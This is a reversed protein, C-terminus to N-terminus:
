SNTLQRRLAHIVGAASDHLVRVQFDYGRVRQASAARVVDTGRRPASVLPPGGAKAAQGGGSEGESSLGQRASWDGSLWRVSLERLRRPRSRDQLRRDGPYERGVSRLLEAAQPRAGPHPLVAPRTTIIGGHAPTQHIAAPVDTAARVSHSYAANCRHSKNVAILGHHSWDIATIATLCTRAGNCGSTRAGDLVNRAHARQLLIRSTRRPPLTGIQHCPPPLALCPWAPRKIRSSTKIAASRVFSVLPHCLVGVRCGGDSLLCMSGYGDGFAARVRAWAAVLRHGLGARRSRAM